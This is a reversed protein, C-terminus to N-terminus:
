NNKKVIGKKEILEGKEILENLIGESFKEIFDLSDIEGKEEVFEIAKEFDDKAEYNHLEKVAKIHKCEGRGKLRFTFHPCTCTGKKLNVEYYKGKQSSQVRFTDGKKVIYM